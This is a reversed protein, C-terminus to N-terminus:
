FPIDDDSVDGPNVESESGRKGPWQEYAALIFAKFADLDRFSGQETSFLFAATKKQGERNTFARGPITVFPGKPGRWVQIERLGIAKGAFLEHVEVDALLKGPANEHPTKLVVKM